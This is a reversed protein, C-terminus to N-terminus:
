EGTILQIPVPLGKPNHVECTQPNECPVLILRPPEQQDLLGLAFMEAQKSDGVRERFERM